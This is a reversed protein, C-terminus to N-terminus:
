APLRGLDDPFTIKPNPTGGDVLRIAHGALEVAQADDTVTLKNQQVFHLGDELRERRFTQPTEAAWLTARDPTSQVNGAADAIRARSIHVVEKEEQHSLKFDLPGDSNFRYYLVQANALKFCEKQAESKVLTKTVVKPAEAQSDQARVLGAGVWAVVALAAAIGIKM